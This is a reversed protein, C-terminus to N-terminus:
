GIIMPWERNVVILESNDVVPGARPMGGVAQIGAVGTVPSVMMAVAYGITEKDM